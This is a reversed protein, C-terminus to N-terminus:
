PLLVWGMEEKTKGIFYFYTAGKPVTPPNSVLMMPNRHDVFQKLGANKLLKNCQKLTLPIQARRTTAMCGEGNLPEITTFITLTPYSKQHPLVQAPTLIQASASTIGLFCVVVMEMLVKKMKEEYLISDSTVRELVM